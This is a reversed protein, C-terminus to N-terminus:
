NKLVNVSRTNTRNKPSPGPAAAALPIGYELLLIHLSFTCNAFEVGKWRREGKGSDEAVPNLVSVGTAGSTM